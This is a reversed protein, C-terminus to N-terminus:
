VPSGRRVTRYLEILLQQRAFAAAEERTKM